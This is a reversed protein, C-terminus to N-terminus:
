LYQDPGRMNRENLCKTDLLDFDVTVKDANWGLQNSLQGRWFHDSLRDVRLYGHYDFAWEGNSAFVHNGKFTGHPKIWIGHFLCNEPQDL